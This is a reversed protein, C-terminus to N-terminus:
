KTLYQAEAQKRANVAQEYGRYFRDLVLVGNVKLRSHWKEDRNHFSVGITGSTNLLVRRNSAQEHWTAWRVNGPEYNGNTNIRDLSYDCKPEPKDGIYDYFAKFNHVWEDYITIGRGGYHRYGAYNKNLCRNKMCKWAIYEPHIANYIINYHNNCYGNAWYKNKCDEVSCQKQTISM